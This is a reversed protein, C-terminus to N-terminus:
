SERVKLTKEMILGDEGDMYYRLMRRLFIYGAKEYLRIASTNGARVTLRVSKSKLKKECYDLLDAGLGQRQHATAVGLTVIWAPRNPFWADIAAGFGIVEKQASVVVYNRARPLLLQLILEIKPYADKPFIELELRRLANVDTLRARRITYAM